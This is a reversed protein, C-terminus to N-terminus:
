CQKWFDKGEKLGAKECIEAIESAYARSSILIFFNRDKSDLLYQPRLVKYSLFENIHPNSDLFAEVKWSINSCQALADIAKTGAGWIYLKREQLYLQKEIPIFGNCIKKLDVPECSYNVKDFNKAKWDNPKKGILMTDQIDMNYWEISAKTPAYNTSAHLITLGAYKALAIMGDSFYNQCNVPYRHLKQMSPVIICILGNPKLVRAMELITFWPFEVHEFMQGSILVDCFDNSVEDWQYANKVAIDVNHGKIMDLGIYKFPLENFFVKYTDVQGPVCQSGVDLVSITRNKDFNSLYNEKFWKM